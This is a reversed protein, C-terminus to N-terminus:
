IRIIVVVVRPVFSLGTIASTIPVPLIIAPALPIIAAFVPLPLPKEIGARNKCALIAERHARDLLPSFILRQSLNPELLSDAAELQAGYSNAQAM